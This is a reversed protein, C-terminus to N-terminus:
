LGGEHPVSAGRPMSGVTAPDPQRGPPPPPTLKVVLLQPLPSCIQHARTTTLWQGQHVTNTLYLSVAIVHRVARDHVRVRM